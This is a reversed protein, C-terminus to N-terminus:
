IMNITNANVRHKIRVGEPRTNLDSVVEGPFNGHVEGSATTKQGLFRMVDDSGYTTMAHQLLGPSLAQLAAPSRFM